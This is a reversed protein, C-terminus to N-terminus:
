AFETGYEQVIGLKLKKNIHWWSFTRRVRSYTLTRVSSYTRVSPRLQSVRNPYLTYLCVQQLLLQSSESRFSDRGVVEAGSRYESCQNFNGATNRYSWSSHRCRSRSTRSSRGYCRRCTVPAACRGTPFLMRSKLVYPGPWPAGQARAPWPHLTNKGVPWAHGNKWHKKQCEVSCFRLGTKCPCVKFRKGEPPDMQCFTCSPSM